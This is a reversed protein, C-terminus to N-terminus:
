KLSLIKERYRSSPEFIWADKEVMIHYGIESGCREFVYM